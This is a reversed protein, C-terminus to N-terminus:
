KLGSVASGAGYFKQNEPDIYLMAAGGIGHSTSRVKHGRKELDHIVAQDINENVTLSGLNPKDQGFSGTHHRTAFRPAKVAEAPLMGFDVNDLILQLAVQDQLDGGAISIALVPRGNKLVLTPTLTIRPRKGPAICNPHGKWTNLSVLRTGHIIGTNGAVGATSGLGSPTAAVVNGWQDAVCLTTTGGQSDHPNDDEILPKMNFPDGLRIELSAHEMDILGTRIKTYQDSLLNLLPVNVFRPDGYYADRDALALKMAEAVLHIYDASFQGMKQLDFGEILRLAQLLYPGQTWPGCKYVTYGKYTSVVPDEIRTVHAILDAKRLFGGQEIYWTELEDAIDGRYFRNSVAQLKENRGGIADEEAQVLKRFTVALDAYWNQGTDITDGDSTDIYWTPGGADLIRLTPAAVEAFSMTGYHQLTTVCLDLAAPVAAARIDNGPIGNEMYWQIAKPDLPAAGQGSLVKVENRSADFIILPVEGGICFAGVAKVSLALLSAVAADAANGGKELIELGALAAASKGAIVLGNQSEAKWDTMQAQSSMPSYYQLLIFFCVLFIKLNM